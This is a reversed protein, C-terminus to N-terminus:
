QFPVRATRCLKKVPLLRRWAWPPAMLKKMQRLHRRPASEAEVSARRLLEQDLSGRYNRMGQTPCGSPLHDLESRERDKRKGCHGEGGAIDVEGPGIALGQLEVDPREVPVFEGGSRFGIGDEANEVLGDGGFDGLVVQGPCPTAAAHRVWEHGRTVIEVGRSALGDAPVGPKGVALQLKENER